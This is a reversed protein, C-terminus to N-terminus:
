GCVFMAFAASFMSVRVEAASKTRSPMWMFLTSVPQTVSSSGSGLAVSFRSIRDEGAERGPVV